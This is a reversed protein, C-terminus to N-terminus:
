DFQRSVTGIQFLFLGSRERKNEDFLEKSCDM